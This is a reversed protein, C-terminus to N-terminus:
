KIREDDLVTLSHVGHPPQHIPWHLIVHDDTKEEAGCERAASPALVDSVPASTTLRSERQEQLLWEPLTPALTLSLLLSGQLHEAVARCEM